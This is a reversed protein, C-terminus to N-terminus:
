ILSVFIVKLMEFLADKVVLGGEILGWSAVGNVITFDSVEVDWHAAPEIMLGLSDTEVIIPCDGAIVAGLPGVLLGV